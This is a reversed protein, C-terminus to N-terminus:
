SHGATLPSANIAADALSAHIGARPGLFRARADIVGVTRAQPLLDQFSKEGRFIRTTYRGFDKTIM